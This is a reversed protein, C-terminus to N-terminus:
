PWGPPCMLTRRRFIACLKVFPLPGPLPILLLIWPLFPPPPEQACRAFCPSIGLARHRVGSTAAFFPPCRPLVWQGTSGVGLPPNSCQALQCPELGM